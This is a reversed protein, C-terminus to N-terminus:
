IIEWMHSLRECLAEQFWLWLPFFKYNNSPSSTECEGKNWCNRALSIFVWLLCEHKEMFVVVCHLLLYVWLPIFLLLKGLLFSSMLLIHQEQRTLALSFKMSSWATYDVYVFPFFFEKLFDGWFDKTNSCKLEPVTCITRIGIDEMYRIIGCPM